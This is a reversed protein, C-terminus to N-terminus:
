ELARYFTEGTRLPLRLCLIPIWIERVATPESGLIISLREFVLLKGSEDHYYLVKFSFVIVLPISCEGWISFGLSGGERFRVLNTRANSASLLKRQDEQPSAM